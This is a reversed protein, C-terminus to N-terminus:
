KFYGLKWAFAGALLLAGGFLMATESRGSINVDRTVAPSSALESSPKLLYTAQKPGQYSGIPARSIALAATNAITKKMSTSGKTGILKPDTSGAALRDVDLGSLGADRQLFVAVANKKAQKAGLLGKFQAALELVASPMSGSANAEAITKAISRELENQLALVTSLQRGLLDVKGSGMAESLATSVSARQAILEQFKGVNVGSAWANAKVSSGDPVTNILALRQSWLMPSGQTIGSQSKMHATRQAGQAFYNKIAQSGTPVFM